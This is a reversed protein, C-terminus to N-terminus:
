DRLPNASMPNIYILRHGDTHQSNRRVVYMPHPAEFPFKEM